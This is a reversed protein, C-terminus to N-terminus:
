DHSSVQHTSSNQQRNPGHVRQSDALHTRWLTAHCWLQPEPSKTKNFIPSPNLDSDSSADEQFTTFRRNNHQLADMKTPASITQGEIAGQAWQPRGRCGIGSWGAPCICQLEPTLLCGGLGGMGLLVRKKEVSKMLLNFSRTDDDPVLISFYLLSSFCFILNGLVSLFSAQHADSRLKFGEVL